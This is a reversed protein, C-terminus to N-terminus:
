LGREKTKFLGSKTNCLYYNNNGPGIHTTVVCPDQTRSEVVRASGIGREIYICRTPINYTHFRMTASRVRALNIEQKLLASIEM